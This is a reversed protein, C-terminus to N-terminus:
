CALLFMGSSCNFRNKKVYIHLWNQWAYELRDVKYLVKFLVSAPM